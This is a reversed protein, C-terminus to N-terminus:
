KKYIIYDNLCNIRDGETSGGSASCLKTCNCFGHGFKLTSGNVQYSDYITANKGTDLLNIQGLEGFTGTKVVTMKYNDTLTTDASCSQGSSSVRTHVATGDSKIVFQHKESWPSNPDPVLCDSTWTGVLSQDFKGAKQSTATPSSGSESEVGENVKRLIAALGFYAGFIIVLVIGIILFVRWIGGSNSKKPDM